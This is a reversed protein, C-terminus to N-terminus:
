YTRRMMVPAITMATLKTTKRTMMNMLTSTEIKKQQRAMRQLKDIVDDPMPLAMAHLRYLIRGTATSLFYFSGQGKGVPRLALAGVSRQNMSNDHEEHTQSYERFQFRCHRKYDVQQGTLITRSSLDQSVGGAVPFANLWFVATKAIEIVLQAPVKQFPLTNYIVRMGEKITRIYREIDGVHENRSTENLRLGLQALGGHLPVFEGDMLATTVKFGAKRYLTVEGKICKLLTAEKRDPVAEMTGFKINQSLTVLLPVKNVYMLDVCLTIESYYKLISTTDVSVSSDM